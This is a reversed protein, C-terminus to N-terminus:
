LGSRELRGGDEEKVEVVQRQHHVMSVAEREKEFGRAVDVVAVM